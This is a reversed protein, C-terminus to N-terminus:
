PRHLSFKVELTAFRKQAKWVCHTNGELFARDLSRLLQMPLSERGSTSGVGSGTKQLVCRGMWGWRSPSRRIGRSGRRPSPQFVGLWSIQL